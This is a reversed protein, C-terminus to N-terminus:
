TTHGLDLLSHWNKMFTLWQMPAEQLSMRAKRLRRKETEPM